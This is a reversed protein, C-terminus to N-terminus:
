TLEGNAIARGSNSAGDWALRAGVAGSRGSARKWRSLEREMLEVHRDAQDLEAQLDQIKASHRALHRAVDPLFRDHAAAAEDVRSSIGAAYSSASRRYLDHLAELRGEYRPRRALQEELERVADALRREGDTLHQAEQGQRELLVDDLAAVIGVLRRNLRSQQMQLSEAQRLQEATDRLGSRLDVALKISHEQLSTYDAKMQAAKGQLGHLGIAVTPVLREADADGAGSEVGARLRRAHAQHAKDDILNFPRARVLSKPRNGDGQRYLSDPFRPPLYVVDRTSGVCPVIQVLGAMGASPKNSYAERM